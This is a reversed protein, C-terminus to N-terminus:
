QVHKRDIIARVFDDASLRVYNECAPLSHNVYGTTSDGGVGPNDFDWEVMGGSHLCFPCPGSKKMKATMREWQLWRYLEGGISLKRASNPGIVRLVRGCPLEATAVTTSNGMYLAGPLQDIMLWLSPDEV